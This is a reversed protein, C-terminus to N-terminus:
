KIRRAVQLRRLGHNTAKEMTTTPSKTVLDHGVRAVEQNIAQWAGRDMPNAQGNQGNEEGPCRELEPILHAEGVSCVTKQMAPLNKLSQAVLFSWGDGHFHAWLTKREKKKKGFAEKLTM